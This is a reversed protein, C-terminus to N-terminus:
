AQKQSAALATVMEDVSKDTPLGNAGMGEGDMMKQRIAVVKKASDRIAMREHWALVSPYAKLPTTGPECCMSLPLVVHWMFFALDAITCKDGVLWERGTLAGELIRLIRHVQETYREMASPLREPHLVNFRRSM